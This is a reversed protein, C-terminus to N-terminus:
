GSAVLRWGEGAKGNVKPPPARGVRINRRTAKMGCMRLTAKIKARHCGLRIAQLKLLPVSATGNQALEQEVNGKKEGM